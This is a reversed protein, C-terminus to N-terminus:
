GPRAAVRPAAWPRPGLIRPDEIAGVIFRRRHKAATTAAYAAPASRHWACDLAFGGVDGLGNVAGFGAPDRALGDEAGAGDYRFAAGYETTSFSM